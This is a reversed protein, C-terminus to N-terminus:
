LYIPEMRGALRRDFNHRSVQNWGDLVFEDLSLGDPDTLSPNTQHGDVISRNWGDPDTLSPMSLDTGDMSSLDTGDM